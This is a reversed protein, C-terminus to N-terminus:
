RKSMELVWNAERSGPMLAGFAGDLVTVVVFSGMFGGSSAYCYAFSRIIEHGLGTMDSTIGLLPSNNPEDLIVSDPYAGAKLFDEHAPALSRLLHLLFLRACDYSCLTYADWLKTFQLVTAFLPGDADATVTSKPNPKVERCVKPNLLIWRRWWCNLEM